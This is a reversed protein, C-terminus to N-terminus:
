EPKTSAPNTAARSKVPTIAPNIAPRSPTPPPITMTGTRKWMKEKKSTSGAMRMCKATPVDSAVIMGVDTIDALDCWAFREM